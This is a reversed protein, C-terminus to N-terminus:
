VAECDLIKCPCGSFSPCSMRLIEWVDTIGAYVGEIPIFCLQEFTPTDSMKWAIGCGFMELESDASGYFEGLRDYVIFLVDDGNADKTFCLQKAEGTTTGTGTGTEPSLYCDGLTKYSIQQAVAYGGRALATRLVFSRVEISASGGVIPFHCGFKDKVTIYYTSTSLASSSLNYGIKNECGSTFLEPTGGSNEQIEYVELEGEGPNGGSLASISETPKTIYVEPSSYDLGPLWLKPRNRTNQTRARERAILQQFIKYDPESILYGKPM